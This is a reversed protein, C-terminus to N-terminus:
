KYDYREGNMHCIIKGATIESIKESLKEAAEKKVAFRIRVGESYETDDIIVDFKQLEFLLKDYESYSCSLECESYLEYTVIRAAELAIRAGETYARTLGGTGLLIGGFYRTVVVCVDVVGSKKIVELM